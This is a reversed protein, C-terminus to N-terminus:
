PYGQRQARRGMKPRLIAFALRSKAHLARIQPV